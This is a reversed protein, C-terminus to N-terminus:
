ATCLFFISCCRVASSLFAISICSARSLFVFLCLSSSLSLSLPIPSPTHSLCTADRHVFRNSDDLWGGCVTTSEGTERREHERSRRSCGSSIRTVLFCWAACVSACVRVSADNPGHIRSGDSISRSREKASKEAKSRAINRRSTDEDTLRTLRTGSNGWTYPSSSSYRFINM